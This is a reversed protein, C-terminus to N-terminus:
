MEYVYTGARKIAYAWNDLTGNRLCVDKTYEITYKQPQSYYVPVDGKGARECALAFLCMALSFTKPGYPAMVSTREGAETVIKMADFAQSVDISDLHLYAIPDPSSTHGDEKHVKMEVEQVFKWNRQIGPPGPPFPFLLQLSMTKDAGFLQLMGHTHFGVGVFAFDHDSRDDDDVFTPLVRLIEPNESLSEAHGNGKTYVVQLNKVRGNSVLHRVMPFFWRKPFSTIDLIISDSKDIAEDCIKRILDISAKLDGSRVEYGCECNEQFYKLNDSLVQVRENYEQEPGINPDDIRVLFVFDEAKAIDVASKM